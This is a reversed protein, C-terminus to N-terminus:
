RFSTDAGFVHPPSYKLAWVGEEGEEDVEKVALRWRGHRTRVLSIFNHQHQTNSFFM